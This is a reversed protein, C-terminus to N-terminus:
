YDVRLPRTRRRHSSESPATKHQCHIHIVKALHSIGAPQCDCKIQITFANRSHASYSNLLNPIRFTVNCERTPKITSKPTNKHSVSFLYRVIIIRYEVECGM